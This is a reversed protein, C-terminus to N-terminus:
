TLNQADNLFGDTFEFKLLLGSVGLQSWFRNRKATHGQFKVSSRSLCYPVEELRSWAKHIM